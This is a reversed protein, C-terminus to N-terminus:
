MGGYVEFYAVYPESYNIIHLFYKLILFDIQSSLQYGDTKLPLFQVAVNTATIGHFCLFASTSPSWMNLDCSKVDDGGVDHLDTNGLNYM